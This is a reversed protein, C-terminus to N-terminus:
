TNYPRAVTDFFNGRATIISIKYEYATPNGGDNWNFGGLDADITIETSNKISLPTPNFTSLTDIKYLIEQNTMNVLTIRDIITEVTGANLLTIEVVNSTPVFRIHEFVIAEQIGNNRHDVTNAMSNNFASIETAGNFLIVSGIPVVIALMLLAGMIQSLGRRNKCFMPNPRVFSFFQL